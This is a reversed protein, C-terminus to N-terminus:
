FINVQVVLEIDAAKFADKVEDPQQWEVLEGRRGPQEGDLLAVRRLNPLAREKQRPFQFLWAFREPPIKYDGNSKFSFDQEGDWYFVGIQSPFEIQLSQLHKPMYQYIDERDPQPVKFAECLFFANITLHRLAEFESLDLPFFGTVHSIFLTFLSLQLVRVTNRIPRLAVLAGESSFDFEPPPFGALTCNFMLNYRFEELLPARSLIHCLSATKLGYGEEPRFLRSDSRLIRLSRLSGTRDPVPHRNKSATYDNVSDVTLDRLSQLLMCSAITGISPGNHLTLSTIQQLIPLSLVADGDLKTRHASGDASYDDPDGSISRLLLTKLNRFGALYRLDDYDGDELSIPGCSWVCKRLQPTEKFTRQLLRHHRWLPPENLTNISQANTDPVFDVHRFLFEQALRRFRQSVLALRSLSLRDHEFNSTIEGLLEDPLHHIHDM